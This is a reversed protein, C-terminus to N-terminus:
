NSQFLLNQLPKSSISHYILLHVISDIRLRFWSIVILNLSFLFATHPPISADHHLIRNKVYFNGSLISIVSM